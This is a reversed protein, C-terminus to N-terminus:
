QARARPPVNQQQDPHIAGAPNQGNPRAGSTLAGPRPTGALGPAAGGPAGPQGQRQQAAQAMQAQNKQQMQMQHLIMHERLSGTLDGASNFLRLHAQMHAQDDDMPHPMVKFGAELMTNEFEPDISLEARIDKFVQAGMRPGFTNEVFQRIIPAMNLRYGPYMQPPISRLTNMGAMQMQMQQANRAAEVGFWRFEFRKEMQIPQIVEMETQVGMEGFSPVLTEEDRYQHDMWVFWQLLPSYIEGELTTVADATTLIDVQQENAIQAQNPRKGPGTVQQPMMAPNVSLTQFIQDKTSNVIAFAEKWLQPFQAFQTDKPNTQWIAAVSLVMSGVRPNKEPDTMIIPLLAYTASDMGENVADNAAYQLTEVRRLVSVGKFVNDTKKVPCSLIPVRDCWYPNRKCGLLNDEGGYYVRCIRYDGDINIKTWTEVVHATAGGDGVHIGIVDLMHKAKSRVQEKLKQSMSKLLEQGAEKDLEGDRILQRIKAKSWRRMVSVSGGGDVAETISNASHPLVLLDADAIVEVEPHADTITDEQIDDHTPMGEIDGMDQPDGLEMAEADVSQRKVRMAVHRETRKWSVGITYQGEVDGNVMLAPSIRTRLKTKRIYHELLSTLGQPTDESGLVEIHRGSQPFIQNVFRTKRADVADAVIPVYIKSNGNYFQNPGLECNYLDWFNLIQNSRDYQDQYGREIDRFLQLCARRIARDTSLEKDREGLQPTDDADDEESPETLIDDDDAM